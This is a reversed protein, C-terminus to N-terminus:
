DWDLIVGITRGATDTAAMSALIRKGDATVDYNTTERPFRFLRVPAEIRLATGPTVDAAM